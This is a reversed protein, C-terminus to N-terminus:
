SGNGSQSLYICPYKSLMALNAQPLVFHICNSLKLIVRTIIKTVQLHGISSISPLFLQDSHHLCYMRVWWMKLKANPDADPGFADHLFCNGLCRISRKTPELPHSLLPFCLTLFFSNQDYLLQNIQSKGTYIRYGQWQLDQHHSADM